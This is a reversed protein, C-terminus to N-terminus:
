YLVLATESEAQLLYRNVTVMGLDTAVDAQGAAVPEWGSGPLCNKPSHVTNGQRQQDYYGRVRLLLPRKRPRDESEYTRILYESFGALRQESESLTVDRAPYGATTKPVASDLPAQLPVARQTDIGVVFLSGLTLLAAPAWWITIPKTDARAGAARDETAGLGGRGAVPIRRRLDGVGRHTAHRGRGSQPRCLVHSLRDPVRSTRKAAHGHRHGTGVVIVRAWTSKLWMGGM